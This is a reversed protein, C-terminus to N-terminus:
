GSLTKEARRKRTAFRHHSLPQHEGLGIVELTLGAQEFDAQL